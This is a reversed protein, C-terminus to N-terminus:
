RAVSCPCDVSWVVENISCWQEIWQYFAAKFELHIRAAVAVIQQCAASVKFKQLQAYFDDHTIKVITDDAKAARYERENRWWDSVRRTRTNEYSMKWKEMCKLKSLAIRNSLWLDCATSFFYGVVRLEIYFRGITWM